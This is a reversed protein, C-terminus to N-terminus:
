TTYEDGDGREDIIQHELVYLRRGFEAAAIVVTAEDDTLGRRKLSALTPDGGFTLYSFDVGKYKDDGLLAAILEGFDKEKDM